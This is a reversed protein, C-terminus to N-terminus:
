HVGFTSELVTLVVQRVRSALQIWLLGGSHMTGSSLFKTLTATSSRPSLGLRKTSRQRPRRVCSQAAHRIGQCTMPIWTRTRGNVDTGSRGQSAVTAASSAECSVVEKGVRTSQPMESALTKILAYHPSYLHNLLVTSQTRRMSPDLVGPGSVVPTQAATM